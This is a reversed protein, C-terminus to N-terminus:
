GPLFWALPNLAMATICILLLALPITWRPLRFEKMFYNDWAVFTRTNQRKLDAGLADRRPLSQCKYHVM